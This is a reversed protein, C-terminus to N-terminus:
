FFIEFAEIAERRAAIQLSLHHHLLGPSNIHPFLTREKWTAPSGWKIKVVVEAQQNDNPWGEKSDCFLLKNKLFPFGHKKMYSLSITAVFAPYVNDKIFHLMYIYHTGSSWCHCCFRQNSSTKFCGPNMPTTTKMTEAWVCKVSSASLFALQRTAERRRRLSRVTFLM